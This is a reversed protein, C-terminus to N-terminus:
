ENLHKKNLAADFHKNVHQVINNFYMEEISYVTIEFLYTDTKEEILKIRPTHKVSTWPLHIIATRIQATKESFSVDKNTQLRFCYNSLIDSQHKKRHITSFFSSYPIFIREGNDTELEVNNIRMRVIRGSYNDINVTENIQLHNSGRFIFGAITEKLIFRSIWFGGFLLLFFIGFAFLYNRSLFYEVGWACFLIWTLLEVIPIAKNLLRKYKRKRAFRLLYIHLLRFLVFLFIAIIAYRVVSLNSLPINYLHLIHNVSSQM